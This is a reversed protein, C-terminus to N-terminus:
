YPGGNCRFGLFISSSFLLQEVERLRRFYALLHTLAGEPRTLQSKLLLGQQRMFRELQGDELSLIPLYEEEYSRTWWDEGSGKV